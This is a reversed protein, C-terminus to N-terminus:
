EHNYENVKTINIFDKIAFLTSQLHKKTVYLEAKGRLQIAYDKNEISNGEVIQKIDVDLMNSIQILINPTFTKEFRKIQTISEKNFGMDELFYDIVQGRELLINNINSLVKENRTM